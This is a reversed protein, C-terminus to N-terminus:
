SNFELIYLKGTNTDFMCFMFNQSYREFLPRPDVSKDNFRYIGSIDKPMMEGHGGYSYEPTHEGYIFKQLEGGLPLEEWLGSKRLEEGFSAIESSNIQIIEFYTGDGHFGGHSDNVEITESSDPLKTGMLRVYKNDASIKQYAGYGIFIILAIILIKGLLAKKM